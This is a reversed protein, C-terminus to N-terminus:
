APDLPGIRHTVDPMVRFPTWPWPNRVFVRLLTHEILAILNLDFWGLFQSLGVGKARLLPWVALGLVVGLPVAVWLLLGRIMLLSFGALFSRKHVMPHRTECTLSQWFVSQGRSIPQQPTASNAQLTCAYVYSDSRLGLQALRRRRRGGVNAM